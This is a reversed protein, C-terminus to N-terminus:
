SLYNAGHYIYKAYHYNSGYKDVSHEIETEIDYGKKRLVHIIAALRTASYLNIADLSTITGREKLHTLVKQTKTTREAM